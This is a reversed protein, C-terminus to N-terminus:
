VRYFFDKLAVFIFKYYITYAMYKGTNSFTIGTLAVTGDESLTNPDLLVEAEEDLANKVYLVSQNQLGDNKFFYYKGNKKQPLGIREYDLLDTLRQKLQARFPIQALYANTVLNEAEVWAATAQSTDNELWRYPDAVETGFYNDVTEGKGAVPYVFNTKSQCASLVIMSSLLILQLNRM